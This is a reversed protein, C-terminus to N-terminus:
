QDGNLNGLDIHVYCGFPPLLVRTKEEFLLRGMLATHQINASQRRAAAAAAAFFFQAHILTVFPVARRVWGVRRSREWRVPKAVAGKPHPQPIM